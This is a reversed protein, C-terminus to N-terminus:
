ILGVECSVWRAYGVEHSVWRTYSVEHSVWRVYGVEHLGGRMLDLKRLGGQTVGVGQWVWWHEGRGLFSIQTKGLESIESTRKM